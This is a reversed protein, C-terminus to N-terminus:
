IAFGRPLAAVVGNGLLHLGALWMVIITLDRKFEEGLDDIDENTAVRELSDCIYQRYERLDERLETRTVIIRRAERM